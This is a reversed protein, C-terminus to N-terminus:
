GQPAYFSIVKGTPLQTLQYAQLNIKLPPRKKGIVLGLVNSLGITRRQSCCQNTALGIVSAATAIFFSYCKASVNAKITHTFYFTLLEKSYSIGYNHRCTNVEDSKQLM